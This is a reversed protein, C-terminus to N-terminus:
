ERIIGKNLEDVFSKRIATIEGKMQMNKLVIELRSALKAHKKNLYHFQNLKVIPPENITIGKLKLKALQFLGIIRPSIVIDVRNKDLIKFLSSFSSVLTVNMGQTGKESFKIGRNVGIKYTSLSEWGNITLNPKKSFVMGEIYNVPIKVKILEPYLKAIAGVRSVEGDSAGSTVSILARQAPQWSTQFSLGLRSYAEKLVAESIKQIYAGKISTLKLPKIIPEVIPEAYSLTMNLALSIGLTVIIIKSIESKNKKIIYDM